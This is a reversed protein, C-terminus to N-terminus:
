DKSHEFTDNRLLLAFSLIATIIALIISSFLSEHNHFLSLLFVVIGVLVCIGLIKWSSTRPGKKKTLHLNILIAIAIIWAAGITFLVIIGVTEGSVKFYFNSLIALVSVLSTIAFLYTMIKGVLSEVYEDVTEVGLLRKIIWKYM